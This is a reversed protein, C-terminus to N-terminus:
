QRFRVGDNIAINHTPAGHGNLVFIWKFGSQAIQGGLDVVISRMTSQRIPYTGPHTPMDGLQNAGSHGYNIPPMM